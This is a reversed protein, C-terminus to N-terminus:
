LSFEESCGIKKGRAKECDRFQKDTRNALEGLWGFTKPKRVPL